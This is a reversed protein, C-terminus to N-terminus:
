PRPGEQVAAEVFRTRSATFHLTINGTPGHRNKALIAWARTEEEEVGRHLLIVVDADQEQSGSERLDSLRPLRDTRAADRNLQAAALVACGCELAVRKLTRTVHAIELDRREMREGASLLQVYDVALLAPAVSRTAAVLGPLDTAEILHLPWSQVRDTALAQLLAAADTPDVDCADAVLRRLVEPGTMELSAALVRRGDDLAARIINGVLATKGVSTRAGVLYLRGAHLGGGLARDLRPIGTRLLPPPTELEAILTDALESPGQLRGLGVATADRLDAFAREVAAAVDVDGDRVQEALVQARGAVRRRAALEAVRRAAEVSPVAVAEQCGHLLLPSVGAEHAVVVLDLPVGDSHLRAMAAFAARLEPSTVDEARVLQRVQPWLAPRLLVAGIMAEELDRSSLAGM